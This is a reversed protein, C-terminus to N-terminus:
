VIEILDSTIEPSGAFKAILGGEEGFGGNPPYLGLKKFGLVSSSNAM